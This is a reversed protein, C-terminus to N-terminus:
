VPICLQSCHKLDPGLPGKEKDMQAMLRAVKKSMLRALKQEYSASITSMLRAACNAPPILVQSGPADTTKELYSRADVLVKTTINQASTSVASLGDATATASLVWSADVPTTKYPLTVVFQATASVGNNVNGLSFVLDNGVWTFAGPQPASVLNKVPVAGTMLNVTTGLPVTVKMNNCTGSTGKCSYNVIYTVAANPQATLTRSANDWTGGSASLALEMTTQAWAGGWAGVAMCVVLWWRMWRAMRVGM